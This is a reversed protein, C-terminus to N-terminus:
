IQSLPFIKKIKVPLQINTVFIRFYDAQFRFLIFFLKGLLQKVDTKVKKVKLRSAAIWSLKVCPGVVIFLMELIVRQPGSEFWVGGRYKCNSM